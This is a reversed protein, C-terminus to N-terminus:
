RDLLEEVVSFLESVITRWRSPSMVPAHFFNKAEAWM